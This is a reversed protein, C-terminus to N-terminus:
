TSIICWASKLLMNCTMAKIKETVKQSLYEHDGHLPPFLLVILDLPKGLTVYCAYLLALIHVQTTEHGARSILWGGHKAAKRFICDLAQCM